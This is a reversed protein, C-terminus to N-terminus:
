MTSTPGDENTSQLLLGTSCPLPVVRTSSSNNYSNWPGSRGPTFTRTTPTTTTTLQQLLLVLQRQQRPPTITRQRRKANKRQHHQLPRSPPPASRTPRPPPLRPWRLTSIAWSHKSTSCTNRPPPPRTRHNATTYFHSLSHTHSNSDYRVVVVDLRLMGPGWTNPLSPGSM